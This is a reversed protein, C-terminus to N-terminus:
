ADRREMILSLGEDNILKVITKDNEIVASLSYTVSYKFVGETKNSDNFLFELTAGNNRVTWRFSNSYEDGEYIKVWRYDPGITTKIELTLNGNIFKTGNPCNALMFYSEDYVVSKDVYVELNYITDDKKVTYYNFTNNKLSPVIIQQLPEEREELKIGNIKILEDETTDFKSALVTLNDGEKLNYIEYM